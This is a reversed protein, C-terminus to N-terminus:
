TQKKQYFPNEEKRLIKSLTKFHKERDIKLKKSAERSLTKIASATKGLRKAVENLSPEKEEMHFYRVLTVDAQSKSLKIEKTLYDFALKRQEVISKTAYYDGDQGTIDIIDGILELSLDEKNEKSLNKLTNVIVRYLYAGPNSISLKDNVLIKFLKEILDHVLDDISDEM